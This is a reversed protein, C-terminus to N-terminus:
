TRVLFVLPCHDLSKLYTFRQIYWLAWGQRSRALCPFCNWPKQYYPSPGLHHKSRLSFMRGSCCFMEAPEGTLRTEMTYWLCLFFNWTQAVGQEGPVTQASGTAKRVRELALWAGAQKGAPSESLTQPLHCSGCGTHHSGAGEWSCSILHAGVRQGEQSQNATSAELDPIAPYSGHLCRDDSRAATPERKGCPSEWVFCSPLHATGKTLANPCSCPFANSPKTICDMEEEEQCRACGSRTM